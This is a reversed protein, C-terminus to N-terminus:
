KEIGCTKGYRNFLMCEEYMCYVTSSFSNRYSMFPCVLFHRTPNVGGEDKMEQIRAQIKETEENQSM